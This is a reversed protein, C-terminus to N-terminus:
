VCLHSSLVNLIHTAFILHLWRNMQDFGEISRHGSREHTSRRRGRGSFRAICAEANSVTSFFFVVYPRHEWYVAHNYRALERGFFKEVSEAIDENVPIAIPFAGGKPYEWAM